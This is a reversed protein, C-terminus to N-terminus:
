YRDRRLRGLGGQGDGRRQRMRHGSDTGTSDGHACAPACPGPLSSETVSRFLDVGLLPDQEGRHVEVPLGSYLCWLAFSEFSLEAIESNTFRDPSVKMVLCREYAVGKGM